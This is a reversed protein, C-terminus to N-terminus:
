LKSLLYDLSNYLGSASATTFASKQGRHNWFGYPNRQFMSYIVTPYSWKHLDVHHQSFMPLRPSRIKLHCTQLKLKTKPKPRARVMPGIKVIQIDHSTNRCLSICKQPRTCVAGQKPTLDRLFGMKLDLTPM